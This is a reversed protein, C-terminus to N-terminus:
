VFKKICATVVGWVRLEQGDHLEIPHYAPNEPFLAVRGRRMHLRKVTFEGDVVGLVIHDHAPTISRDVILIDGNGIGAGIMSDGSVRAMFTAPADKILYENLDLVSELYDDAPSPFGAPVRSLFLPLAVNPPNFIPTFTTSM